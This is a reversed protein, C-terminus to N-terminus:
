LDKLVLQDLQPKNKRNQYKESSQLEEVFSKMDSIGCKTALKQQYAKAIYEARNEPTDEGAHALRDVVKREFGYAPMVVIHSSRSQDMHKFALHDRGSIFDSKESNPGALLNVSELANASVDNLIKRDNEAISPFFKGVQSRLNVKAWSEDRMKKMAKMTGSPLDEPQIPNRLVGMMKDPEDLYMWALHANVRMIDDNLNFSGHDVHGDKKTWVHLHDSNMVVVSSIQSNDSNLQTTLTEYGDNQRDWCTNNDLAIKGKSRSNFLAKLGLGLGAVTLAVGTTAVAKIIIEEPASM